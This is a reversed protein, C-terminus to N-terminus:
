RGGIIIRARSELGYLQHHEQKQAHKARAKAEDAFEYRRATQFTQIIKGVDSLVSARTALIEGEVDVDIKSFSFISPQTHELTEVLVHDMAQRINKVLVEDKQGTAFQERMLKALAAYAKSAAPTLVGPIPLNKRNWAQQQRTLFPQQAAIKQSPEVIHKQM